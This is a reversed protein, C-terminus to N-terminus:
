GGRRAARHDGTVSSIDPLSHRTVFGGVPDSVMPVSCLLWKASLALRSSGAVSRDHTPERGGLLYRRTRVPPTVDSLMVVSLRRGRLHSPLM